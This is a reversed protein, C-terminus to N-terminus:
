FDYRFPLTPARLIQQVNTSNSLFRRSKDHHMFVIRKSIQISAFDTEFLLHCGSFRFRREAVRKMAYDHHM